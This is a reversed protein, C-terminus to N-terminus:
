RSADSNQLKMLVGGVEANERIKRLLRFFDEDSLPEGPSFATDKKLFEPMREWARRRLAEEALRLMPLFREVQDEACLGHWLMDIILRRNPISRRTDRLWELLILEASYSYLWNDYQRSLQEFERRAETEPEPFRMVTAELARTDEVITRLDVVAAPRELTEKADAGRYNAYATLTYFLEPTFEPDDVLQRWPIKPSGSACPYIRWALDSYLYSGDLYKKVNEARKPGRLRERAAGAEGLIAAVDDRYYNYRWYPSGSFFVAEYKDPEGRAALSRLVAALAPFCERPKMYVHFRSYQSPQSNLAM